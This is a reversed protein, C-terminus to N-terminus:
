ADDAFTAVVADHDSADGAPVISVSALAAALPRSAFLYDTRYDVHVGGRDRRATIWQTPAGRAHLLDIWGASELEEIVDFRPPHGFKDTGAALLRAALDAPYPDRRSLSNLDGALLVKGAAFRDPDIRSRLYRAEVFRLNEHHSDFHAAFLTLGGIDVEALCHGIFHSDNHLRVSQIPRRSVVAVHYRKGSGRPRAEALLTHRPDDPLGLVSAIRGLRVRDEWGLAEQLVVLDPGTRSVLDLISEFRDGGGFLINWTM